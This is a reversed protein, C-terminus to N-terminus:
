EQHRKTGRGRKARGSARRVPTSEPESCLEAVVNISALLTNFQIITQKSAGTGATAELADRQAAITAAFGVHDADRWPQYWECSYCSQPPYFPCLGCVHIDRACTGVGTDLLPTPAIVRQEPRDGLVADTENAVIRGRWRDMIKAYEPGAAAEIRQAADRGLGYYVLVHQADTHDLLDMVADISAGGAALRSAFTRRFRRVTLHGGPQHALPSAAFFATLARAFGQLQLPEGRPGFLLHPDDEALMARTERTEEVYVEILKGLERSIPRQRRQRYGDSKKSRPMELHYRTEVSNPYTLFDRLRLECFQAVNAGLELALMTCLRPLTKETGRRLLTLLETFAADSLPGEEPDGTRVAVGTENGGLTIGYLADACDESFGAYGCTAAWRYFYRLIHLMAIRSPTTASALLHLFEASDFDSWTFDADRGQVDLFQAYEHLAAYVRVATSVSRTALIHHLYATPAIGAPSGYAFHPAWGTRLRLWSGTNGPRMVQFDGDAVDLTGGALLPISAESPSTTDAPTEQPPPGVPTVDPFKEASM